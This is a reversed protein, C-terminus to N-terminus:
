KRWTSVLLYPQLAQVSLQLRQNFVLQNWIYLYFESFNKEHCIWPIFSINCVVNIRRINGSQTVMSDDNILSYFLPQAGQCLWVIVMPKIVASRSTRILIDNLYQDVMCRMSFSIKEIKLYWANFNWVKYYQLGWGHYILLGVSGVLDNFHCAMKGFPCISESRVVYGCGGTTIENQRHRSGWM